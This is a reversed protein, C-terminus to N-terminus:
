RSLGRLKEFNQNTKMMYYNEYKQYNYGILHQIQNPTFDQQMDKM